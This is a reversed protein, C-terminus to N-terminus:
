FPFSVVGLAECTCPGWQVVPRASSCFFSPGIKMMEIFPVVVWWAPFKSNDKIGKMGEDEVDLKGAFGKLKVEIIYTLDTKQEGDWKWVGTGPDTARTQIIVLKRDGMDVWKRRWDM